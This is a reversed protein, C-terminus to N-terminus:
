ALVDDLCKKLWPWFKKINGRKFCLNTVELLDQVDLFFHTKRSDPSFGPDISLVLISFSGRAVAERPNKSTTDPSLRGPHRRMETCLWPDVIISCCQIWGLGCHWITKLCVWVPSALALLLQINAATWSLGSGRGEEPAEGFKQKLPWALSQRASLWFRPCSNFTGWDLFVSSRRSWRVVGQCVSGFGSGELLKRFVM